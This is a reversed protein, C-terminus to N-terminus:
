RRCPVGDDVAEVDVACLDCVEVRVAVAEDEVDLDVLGLSAFAVGACEVLVGVLRLAEVVDGRPSAGGFAVCEGLRHAAVDHVVLVGDGGEAEVVVLSCVDALDGSESWWV